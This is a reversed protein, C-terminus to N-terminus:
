GGNRQAARSLNAPRKWTVFVSFWASSPVYIHRSLRRRMLADAQLDRRIGFLMQFEFADRVAAWRTPTRDPSRDYPHRAYRHAPYHRANSCASILVAYREDVDAKKQYAVTKSERYAGKVLRIRGGFVASGNKQRGRHSLPGGQARGINRYGQEWLIEFIDLTM